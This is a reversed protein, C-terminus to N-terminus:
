VSWFSKSQLSSPIDISGDERICMMRLSEISTSSIWMNLIDRDNIDNNQSM